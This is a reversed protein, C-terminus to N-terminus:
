SSPYLSFIYSLFTLFYSLPLVLNQLVSGTSAAALIIDGKSVYAPVTSNGLATGICTMNWTSSYVVGTNHDELLGLVPKIKTSTLVM